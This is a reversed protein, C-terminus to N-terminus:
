LQHASWAEIAAQVCMGPAIFRAASANVHSVIGHQWHDLVDGIRASGASIACAAVEASSLIELARIGAADKGVGADNFFVLGPMRRRAYEGSSAGGHSASVVIRGHDADTLFSISDILVVETGTRTRVIEREIM